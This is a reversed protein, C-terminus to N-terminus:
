DEECTTGLAASVQSSTPLDLRCYAGTQAPKGTIVDVGDILLTPSPFAGEREELIAEIRADQLCALVTARVRERLPCGPVYLLEIRTTRRHM